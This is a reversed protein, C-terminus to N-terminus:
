NFCSIVKYFSNTIGELGLLSNTFKTDGSIIWNCARVRHIYERVRRYVIKQTNNSYMRITVVIMGPKGYDFFGDDFLTCRWKTGRGVTAGEDLAAESALPVKFQHYRGAAADYM